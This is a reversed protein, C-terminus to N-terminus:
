DIQRRIDMWVVWRRREREDEGEARNVDWTRTESGNVEIEQPVNSLELGVTPLLDLFGQITYRGTHLGAVLVIRAHDSKALASTLTDLFPKHLSPNWLTDAAIILDFGAETIRENHDHIARLLISTDEGWAYPIARCRNEAGNRTINDTLSQILTEDPYDSAVISVDQYERAILISPLGSSAGLELIDLPRTPEDLRKRNIHEPIQLDSLHNAIYLSAVWISSAHLSWNNAQTEPVTLNIQRATQVASSEDSSHQESSGTSSFYSFSFPAGASSHTIPTYDYLIQLSDSLLDEPSEQSM